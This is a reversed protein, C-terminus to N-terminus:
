RTNKAMTCALYEAIYPVASIWLNFQKMSTCYDIMTRPNIATKEYAKWKCSCIVPAFNKRMKLQIKNFYIVGNDRSVCTVRTCLDSKWTSGIPHQVGDSDVCAVQQCTGCCVSSNSVQYEWGKLLFFFCVFSLFQRYCIVSSAILSVAPCTPCSEIQLQKVITGDSMELCIYM